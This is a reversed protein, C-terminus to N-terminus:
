WVPGAKAGDRVVGTCIPFESKALSAQEARKQATVDRVIPVGGAVVGAEVIPSRTCVAEIRAGDKRSMSAEYPAEIIPSNPVEKQICTLRPCAQGRGCSCGMLDRLGQGRMEGLSWGFTREAAPNGYTIRGEADIMFVPRAAHAAITRAMLEEPCEPVAGADAASDHDAKMRFEM